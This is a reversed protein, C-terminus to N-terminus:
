RVDRELFMLGEASNWTEANTEPLSCEWAILAEIFQRNVQFLVLPAAWQFTRPTLPKSLKCISPTERGSGM